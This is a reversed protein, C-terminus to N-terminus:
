KQARWYELTDTLTQEFPIEPAWGTERNIKENSGWYEPVDSPRMREPDQKVEIKVKSQSLLFDLIWSIKRPQGSCINYKQRTTGKEILLRYGRVVDRVDLFDRSADLNGVLIEKKRERECVAIQKAFAGVVLADTAGPGTHNFSRSIIYDENTFELAVHEQALKSKAYPNQPQPDASETIPFSKQTGYVDSSSTILLRVDHHINAIAELINRTMISNVNLYKEPDSWSEKVSTLAALHIVADPNLSSLADSVAQKDTLECKIVNDGREHRDLGIVKHGNSILERSLHPGVFGSIGTVAIKM